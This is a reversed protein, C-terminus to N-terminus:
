NLQHPEWEWTHGMEEEEASPVKPQRDRRPGLISEDEENQNRNSQVHEKAVEAVLERVQVVQAAFELLLGSFHEHLASENQALCALQLGMIGEEWVVREAGLNPQVAATMSMLSDPAGSPLTESHAIFSHLSIYDGMDRIYVRVDSTRFQEMVSTHVVIRGSHVDTVEAGKMTKLLSHVQKLSDTM